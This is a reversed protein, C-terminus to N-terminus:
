LKMREMEGKANSYMCLKVGNERMFEECAKCPKALGLNGGRTLRLSVVKTGKRESPWLKKLANVEAHGRDHNVGMSVINSGRYVIVAHRHVTHQAKPFLKHALRLNM